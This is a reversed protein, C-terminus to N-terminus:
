TRRLSGDLDVGPTRADRQLYAVGAVPRDLDSRMEMEELDIAVEFEVAAGGEAHTKIDRGVGGNAELRAVLFFDRKNREAALAEDKSEVIEDIAPSAVARM